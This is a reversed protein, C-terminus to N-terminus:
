HPFMHLKVRLVPQDKYGYARPSKAGREREREKLRKPKRIERAGERTM